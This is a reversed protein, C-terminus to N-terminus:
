KNNNLKKHLGPTTYVGFADYYISNENMGKYWSKASSVATGNTYTLEFRSVDDLLVCVWYEKSDVTDNGVSTRHGIHTTSNLEFVELPSYDKILVTSIDDSFGIREMGDIDGFTFQGTINYPIDTGHEYFSISFWPNDAYYASMRWSIDKAIMLPTNVYSLGNYEYIYKDSVKDAGEFIIEVDVSVGNYVGINTVRWGLDGWKSEDSLDVYVDGLNQYTFGGDGSTNYWRYKWLEDDPVANIPIIDSTDADYRPTWSYKGDILYEDSVYKIQLTNAHSITFMLAAICVGSLTMAFYKNKM